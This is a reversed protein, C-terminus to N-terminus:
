DEEMYPELEGDKNRPRGASAKRALAVAELDVDAVVLGCECLGECYRGWPALVANFYPSYSGDHEKLVGELETGEDYHTDILVWQEPGDDIRAKAHDPRGIKTRKVFRGVMEVKFPVAKM